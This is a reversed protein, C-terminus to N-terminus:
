GQATTTNTDRRRDNNDVEKNISESDQLKVIIYKIANVRNEHEINHGECPSMQGYLTQIIDLATLLEIREYEDLILRM